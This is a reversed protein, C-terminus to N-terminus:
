HYPSWRSRCEKGVRREESRKTFRAGLDYYEKLRERLGDLGETVTEDKSGALLKAGKDVKIGPIAGHKSILEPITLGMTTKQRITEDFLIVGGIYEKMASSNFLTQRFYLRNKEINEVNISKFRKAITGTSEDAALIGKGKACMKKAIINLDM